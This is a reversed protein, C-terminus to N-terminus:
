RSGRGLLVIKITQFVIALDFLVNMNKVYFLDYELKERADEVSAGYPYCIQAWGTIGPKVNHREGYFPILEKLNRVFEPREPRPGVFSMDGKLVNWMQPLEDIRLKRIYKGVRTIRPDDDEAWVAGCEKEAECIMSRFKYLRFPKDGEGCRTQSYFVPGRSELKICLATILCLPLTFSLGVVSMIIGVLRKTVRSSRSKKFGESFILWSPKLREVLIKAALEEYFSIGDLVQIGGMKCRLLEATPFKGRKEDLAVVIKRVSAALAREYIGDLDSFVQSDKLVPVSQIAPNDLIAAIHYGSDKRQAIEQIIKRALEGSGIITINESFMRKKLIWSYLFRWSCVFITLFIISILFVGRGLMTSPFAYYIVALVISAIGLSKTLRLGLEQYSDTVRLDYLDNYYLSLQCVSAMLAIKAGIHVTLAQACYAPGLRILMALLISAVIFLGEGVVFFIKTPPYYKHLIKPM